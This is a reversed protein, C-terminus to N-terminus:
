EWVRKDPFAPRSHVPDIRLTGMLTTPSESKGQPCRAVVLTNVLSTYSFGLPAAALIQSAPDGLTPHYLGSLYLVHM